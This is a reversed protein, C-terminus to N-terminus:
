DAERRRAAQRLIRRENEAGGGVDAVRECRKPEAQISDLEHVDGDSLGHVHVKAGEKRDAL